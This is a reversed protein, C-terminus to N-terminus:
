DPQDPFRRVARVLKVAEAPVDGGSQDFLLAKRGNSGFSIPGVRITYVSPYPMERVIRVRFAREAGEGPERSPHPAVVRETCMECPLEIQDDVHIRRVRQVRELAPRLDLGVNGFRIGCTDSM